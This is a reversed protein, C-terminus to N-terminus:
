GNTKETNALLFWNADIGPPDEDFLGPKSFGLIKREPNGKLHVLVHTKSECYPHPTIQEIIFTEGQCAAHLDTIVEDGLGLRTGDRRFTHPLSQPQAEM